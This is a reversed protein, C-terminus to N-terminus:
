FSLIALVGHLSKRDNGEHIGNNIEYMGNGSYFYVKLGHDRVVAEVFKLGNGRSEPARGSIIETFGVRIAENETKIEPKVPKLTALMGRGRDAIIVFRENLDYAFYIGKEDKWNGLNHDFANNGIEGIIASLLPFIRELSEIRKMELRMHDLRAQFVDRTSCHEEPLLFNEGNEMGLWDFAKQIRPVKIEMIYEQSGISFPKLVTFQLSSSSDRLESLLSLPCKGM